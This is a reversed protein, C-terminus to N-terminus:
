YSTFHMIHIHPNITYTINYQPTISHNIITITTNQTKKKLCFVAYSILMLSQLESTHEESRLNITVDDSLFDITVVSNDECRYPHSAQISPPLMVQVNETTNNEAGDNGADQGCGTLTVTTSALLVVLAATPTRPSQFLRM